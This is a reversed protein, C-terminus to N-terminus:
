VMAHLYNVTQVVTALTAPVTMQNLALVGVLAFLPLILHWYVMALSCNAGHALIVLKVAALIVQSVHVRVVVSKHIQPM